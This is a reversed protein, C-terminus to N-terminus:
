ATRSSLLVQSAIGSVVLLISGVLAWVIPLSRGAVDVMFISPLQTLRAVVAGLIAGVFGLLGSALFSRSSGGTIPGAIAGSIGGIVLYVVLEFLTMRAISALVIGLKARLERRM